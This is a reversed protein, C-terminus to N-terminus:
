PEVVRRPEVPAQAREAVCVGDPKSPTSLEDACKLGTECDCSDGRDCAQDLEARLYCTGHNRRDLTLERDNGFPRRVRSAGRTAISAFM